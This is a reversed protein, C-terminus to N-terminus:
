GKKKYKRVLNKGCLHPHEKILPVATSPYGTDGLRVANTELTDFKEDVLEIVADIREIMVVSYMFRACYNRELNMKELRRLIEDTLYTRKDDKGWTRIANKLPIVFVLRISNSEHDVQVSKIAEAYLQYVQSKEPLEDRRILSLVARNQSECIEDAFRLLAALVRPRFFATGQRFKEELPFITDKDGQANVGGHAEAVKAIAKKEFNDSGSLEGMEQLISFPQKEHGIRGSLNGADHLLIALLLVYIEYPNLPVPAKDRVDDAGMLLGAFRIVEDFHDPGHDTYIGGDTALGAGIHKFYRETLWSKIGWYREFYNQNREPFSNRLRSLKKLLKELPLLANPDHPM